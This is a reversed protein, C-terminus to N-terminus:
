VHARGIKAVSLQQQFIYYPRSFRMRERRAASPEFGNLAVDIDGRELSPQLLDFLTEKREIRVAFLKSLEAIIEVEFGIEGKAPDVPDLYCFPAGGDASAGWYLVGRDRYKQPIQIQAVVSAALLLALLSRLANM